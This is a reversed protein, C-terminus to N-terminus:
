LIEKPMEWSKAVVSAVIESISLNLTFIFHSRSDCFMLKRKRLDVIIRMSKIVFITIPLHYLLSVGSRYYNTILNMSSNVANISSTLIM